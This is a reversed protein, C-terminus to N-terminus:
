QAAEQEPVEPGRAATRQHSSTQQHNPNNAGEHHPLFLDLSSTYIEVPDLRGALQGSKPATTTGSETRRTPPM